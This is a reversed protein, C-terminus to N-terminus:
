SRAEQIAKWVNQPSAPMPVDRVGLDSLADVIANIVAPAAGITGAEGIGKVGLQNTPSPTVTHDLKLGPVDSAAPV